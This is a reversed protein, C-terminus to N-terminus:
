LQAMAAGAGLSQALRLDVTGIHQVLWGGILSNLRLVLASSPAGSKLIDAKVAAFDRKFQEHLAKHSAFGQYGRQQMLREEAGFHLVVYKELYELLRTVEANGKGGRMADLLADAREFLEAHQDDIAPVGIALKPTWTRPM